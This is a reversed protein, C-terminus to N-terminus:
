LVMLALALGALLALSGTLKQKKEFEGSASREAQELKSALAALRALEGELDSKGFASAFDKMLARVADDLVLEAENEAWARDFASGSRLAAEIRSWFSAHRGAGSLEAALLPLERREFRLSGELLKLDSLLGSLGELRLRRREREVAGALVAGALLMAALILRMM